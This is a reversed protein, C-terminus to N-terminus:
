NNYVCKYYMRPAIALQAECTATGDRNTAICSYLGADDSNVDKITLSCVEGDRKLKYKDGNTLQHGNKHWIINPSPVGTVRAHFKADRSLL